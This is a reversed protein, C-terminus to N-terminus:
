LCQLTHLITGRLMSGVDHQVEPGGNKTRADHWVAIQITVFTAVRPWSEKGNHIRTVKWPSEQLLREEGISRLCSSLKNLQTSSDLFVHTTRTIVFVRRRSWSTVRLFPPWMSCVSVCVFWVCRSCICKKCYIEMHWSNTRWGTSVCNTAPPPPQVSVICTCIQM